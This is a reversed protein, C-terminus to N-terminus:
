LATWIALFMDIFKRILGDPCEFIHELSEEDIKWFPYHLIGQYKTNQRLNAKVDFM